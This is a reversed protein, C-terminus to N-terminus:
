PLAYVELRANNKLYLPHAPSGDNNVQLTYFTAISARLLSRARERAIPNAGWAAVVVKRGGGGRLADRITKDNEPGIIDEGRNLAAKLDRPDTARYAFLNVVTLSGCSWRQAYSSCKRITPDDVKDDATSPNLMVFVALQAAERDWYRSLSYRYKGCDSIKAHRIM